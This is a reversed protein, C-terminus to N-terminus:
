VTLRICQTMRRQNHRQEYVDSWKCNEKCYNGNSDKRDLTMGEPRGGMDEFFNRFDDWRKCVVIGRGGYNPYKRHKPNKCRERMARWSNYTASRFGRAAHSHILNVPPLSM